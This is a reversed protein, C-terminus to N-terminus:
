EYEITPHKGFKKVHEAIKDARRKAEITEFTHQKPVHKAVLEHYKADHQSKLNKLEIRMETVREHYAKQQATKRIEQRQIRLLEEDTAGYTIDNNSNNNESSKIDNEWKEIDYYKSDVMTGTNWDDCFQAWWKREERMPLTERSIGHVEILWSTFEPIKALRDREGIFGYQGQRYNDPKVIHRQEQL